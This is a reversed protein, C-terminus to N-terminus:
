NNSQDRHNNAVEKEFIIVHATLRKINQPTAAIGLYDELWEKAMRKIVAKEEQQTLEEKEPLSQNHSAQYRNNAIRTMIKRGTKNDM